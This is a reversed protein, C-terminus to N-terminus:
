WGTVYLVQVCASVIYDRRYKKSFGNSMWEREAEKYENM